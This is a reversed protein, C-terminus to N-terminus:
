LLDCVQDHKKYYECEESAHKGPIGCSVLGSCGPPVCGDDFIVNADLGITTVGFEKVYCGILRSFTRHWEITDPKDRHPAHHHM